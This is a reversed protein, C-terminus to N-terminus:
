INSGDYWKRNVDAWVPHAMLLYLQKRGKVKVVSFVFKGMGSFEKMSGSVNPLLQIDKLGLVFVHILYIIYMSQLILIHIVYHYNAIGLYIRLYCNQSCLVCSGVPFMLLYCSSSLALHEMETFLLALCIIPTVGM